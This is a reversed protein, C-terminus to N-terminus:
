DEKQFFTKTFRSFSIMCWICKNHDLVDLNFGGTIHFPKLNNKTKKKFKKLLTEFPETVEKPPKYLVNILSNREKDFLIEMLLSEEDQSAISLEPWLKFNLSKNVCNSVGGGKSYSEVKLESLSRSTSLTDGDLWKESFCM